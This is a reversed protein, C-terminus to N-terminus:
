EQSTLESFMQSGEVSMSDIGKEAIYAMAADDSLGRPLGNGRHGKDGTNMGSGKVWGFEEALSPVIQDVTLPEGLPNTLMKGDRKYITKGDVDERQLTNNIILVAHEKNIKAKEPLSKLITNNHDKTKIENQLGTYKGNLDEITSQSQKYTEHLTNYKQEAEKVKRIQAELEESPTMNKYKEELQSTITVTAKETLKDAIIKADKEGAQLELGAAQAVKKMGIEVYADKMKTEDEQSVVRGNLKLDLTVENESSLAGSLEDVTVNLVTAIIEKNAQSLM